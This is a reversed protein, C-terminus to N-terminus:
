SMKALKELRQPFHTAIFHILTDDNKTAEVKAEQKIETVEPERETENENM